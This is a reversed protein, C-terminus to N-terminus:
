EPLVRDRAEGLDALLAARAFEGDRRVSRESISLTEAIEADSLGAYLRLTVVRAARPHRRGLRELPKTSPSPAPRTKSSRSSRSKSM